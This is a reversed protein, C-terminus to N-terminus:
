FFWRHKKIVFIDTCLVSHLAKIKFNRPGFLSKRVFVLDQLLSSRKLIMQWRNRNFPLKYIKICNGRQSWLLDIPLVSNFQSVTKFDKNTVEKVEKLEKRRQTQARSHFLFNAAMSKQNWEDESEAKRFGRCVSVLGRMGPFIVRPPKNGIWKEPSPRCIYWSIRLGTCGAVRPSASRWLVSWRPHRCRARSLM